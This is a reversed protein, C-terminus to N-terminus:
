WLPQTTMQVVPTTRLTSRPPTLCAFKHFVRTGLGPMSAPVFAQAAVAYGLLVAVCRPPQMPLPTDFFLFAHPPKLLFPSSDDCLNTSSPLAPRRSPAAVVGVAATGYWTTQTGTCCSARQPTGRSAFKM